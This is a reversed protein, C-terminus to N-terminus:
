IHVRHFRLCQHSKGGINYKELDISGRDVRPGVARALVDDAGRLMPVSGRRLEGQCAELEKECKKLEALAAILNKQCNHRDTRLEKFEKENDAGIKANKENLDNLSEITGLALNYEVKLQEIDNEKQKIAAANQRSVLKLHAIGKDKDIIAKNDKRMRGLSADLRKITRSAEGAQISLESNDERIKAIKARLDENVKQVEEDGINRANLADKCDDLKKNCNALKAECDDSVNEAIAGASEADQRLTEKEETLQAVKEREAQLQGEKEATSQTHKTTAATREAQLNEIVTNKDQLDQQLKDVQADTDGTQKKKEERLANCRKNAEKTAELNAACKSLAETNETTLNAIKEQLEVKAREHAGRIKEVADKLKANAATLKTIKTTQDNSGQKTQLQEIQQHLTNERTRARDQLTTKEKTLGTVQSEWEKICKKNAKECNDIDRNAEKLKQKCEAIKKLLDANTKNVRGSSGEVLNLSATQQESRAQLERITDKHKNLEKQLMASNATKVSVLKTLDSVKQESDTLKNLVNTADKRKALTKGRLDLLQARLREAGVNASLADEKKVQIDDKLGAVERQLSTITDKDAEAREDFSSQDLSRVIAAEQLTKLEAKCKKLEDRCKKLQGASVDKSELQNELGKIKANLEEVTTNCKVSINKENQFAIKQFAVEQETDELTKKLKQMSKSDSTVNSSKKSAKKCAVAKGILLDVISALRDLKVKDLNPIGLNEQIYANRVQRTIRIEPNQAKICIEILTSAEAKLKGLKREQSGENLLTDMSQKFIAPRNIVAGYLLKLDDDSATPWNMPTAKIPTSKRRSM